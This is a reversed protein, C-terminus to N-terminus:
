LSKATIENLLM